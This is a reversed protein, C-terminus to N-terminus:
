RFTENNKILEQWTSIRPTLIKSIIHIVGNIGEVDPKEILVGDVGFSKRNVQLKLPYKEDLSM